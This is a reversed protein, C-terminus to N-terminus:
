QFGVLGCWPHRKCQSLEQTCYILQGSAVRIPVPQALPVLSSVGRVMQESIFSASGGSDVLM